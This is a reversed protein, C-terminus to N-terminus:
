SPDYPSLGLSSAKSTGAFEEGFDVISDTDFCDPGHTYFGHFTPCSAFTHHRKEKCDVRHTEGLCLLCLSHGDSPPVKSQCGTCKKFFGWLKEM